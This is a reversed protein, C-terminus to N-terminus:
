QEEEFIVQGIKWYMLVREFNVSRIAQEKSQAIIHWIQDIINNSLQM